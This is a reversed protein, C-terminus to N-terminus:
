AGLSFTVSLGTVPETGNNGRLKSLVCHQGHWLKIIMLDGGRDMYDPFPHNIDKKNDKARIFTPSNAFTVPDVLAHRKDPASTSYFNTFSFLM